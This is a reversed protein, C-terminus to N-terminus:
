AAAEECVPERWVGDETVGACALMGQIVEHQMWVIVQREYRYYERWRNRMHSMTSHDRHMLRAVTTVTLDGRVIDILRFLMARGKSTLADRRNSMLSRPPIGTVRAVRQVIEHVPLRGEGTETEM